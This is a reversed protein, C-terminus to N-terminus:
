RSPSGPRAGPRPVATGLRSRRHGCELRPGGMQECLRVVQELMRRSVDFAVPRQSVAPLPRAPAESAARDAFAEAECVAASRILRKEVDDPADGAQLASRSAPTRRPRWALPVDVKEFPGDPITAVAAALEGGEGQKLLPPQGSQPEDADAMYRHILRRREEALGQKGEHRHSRRM